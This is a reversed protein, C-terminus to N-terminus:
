NMGDERANVGPCTGSHIQQIFAHVSSPNEGSEDTISLTWMPVRSLLLYPINHVLGALWVKRAGFCHEKTQISIVSNM